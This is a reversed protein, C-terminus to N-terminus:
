VQILVRSTTRYSLSVGGQLSSCGWVELGKGVRDGWSRAVALNLRPNGKQHSLKSVKPQFHVPTIIPSMGKTDKADSDKNDLTWHKFNKKWVYIEPKSTTEPLLSFTTETVEPKFKEKKRYMGFNQVISLSRTFNQYTCLFTSVLPFFNLSYNSMLFLKNVRQFVRKWLTSPFLLQLCPQLIFNLYSWNRTKLEWNHTKLCKLIWCPCMLLKQGPLSWISAKSIFILSISLLLM